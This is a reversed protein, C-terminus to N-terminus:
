RGLPARIRRWQRSRLFPPSARVAAAVAAHDLLDFGAAALEAEPFARRLVPMLHGGVFGAAGTVLIRRLM